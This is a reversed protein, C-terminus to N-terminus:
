IPRFTGLAPSCGRSIKHFGGNIVSAGSMTLNYICRQLHMEQPCREQQFIELNNPLTSNAIKMFLFSWFGWRPIPHLSWFRCSVLRGWREGRVYDGLFQRLLPEALQQISFVAKAGPLRLSSREILNDTTPIYPNSERHPSCGDPMRSRLGALDWGPM